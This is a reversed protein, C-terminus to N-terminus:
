NQHKVIRGNIFQLFNVDENVRSNGLFSIGGKQGQHNSLQGIHRAINPGSTAGSEIANVILNYADYGFVEWREPSRKMELRFESRFTRFSRSDEDPFYDSVFIAGNIYPQIQKGKLIELDDLYEGGLIQTRINHQALQPAVYMIDESYVPIFFGDISLVPIDREKLTEGRDEAEQMMLEVDTSDFKFAAARINKFQRGFDESETDYWSQAIIRGGLEDITATFSAVMQQGYHDAPALTAFTQMGLSNVAYEALARGKRELDSNLLFVTEGVSAVGNETATPGVLVVDREAALAGIGATIGSELDGIIAQVRERGVLEKTSQIAKIMSSESDRIALKVIKQGNKSKQNHAFKIGRLVGLGEESFYGSIPLVVGVGTVRNGGNRVEGILEDIQRAYKGHAYRKKHNELVALAYDIAGKQLEHGALAMSVLASAQEGSAYQLLGEVEKSSLQTAMLYKALRTSRRLLEQERSYGTVWLLDKVAEIHQGLRYRATARAYFADDVYKSQPYSTVLRDFYLISDVYRRLKYLSKGAMLLSATMRHHLPEAAVLSIFKRGALGYDQDVYIRLAKKFNGEADAVIEVKQSQQSLLSGPLGFWFLLAIGVFSFRNKLKM